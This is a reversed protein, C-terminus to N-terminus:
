IKMRVSCWHQQIEYLVVYKGLTVVMWNVFMIAVTKRMQSHRFVDMLGINEGVTDTGTSEKDDNDMKYIM